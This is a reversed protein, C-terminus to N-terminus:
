LPKVELKVKFDGSTATLKLLPMGGKEVISWKADASSYCVVDCVGQGNAGTIRVTRGDPLPDVKNGEATFMQWVFKGPADGVKRYDDKIVLSPAEASRRYTIHREANTLGAKTYADKAQGTVQVVDGSDEFYTISGQTADPGGVGDQGKGDVLIVNHWDATKKGVGPDIAFSEGCAYFTFSNEDAHNWVGEIGRDSTLTFLSDGDGWGSRAVVQGLEFQKSLPWDAVSPSLPSLSNDVWLISQMMRSSHGSHDNAGYSGTGGYRSSDGVMRLWAWMGVRNQFRSCFYLYWDSQNLLDNSQNIPVVGGGWPYESYALWQSIQDLHAAEKCALLDVGRLRNLAVAYDVANQKGYGLYSAGEYPAGTADNSFKFYGLLRKNALEIWEPHADLVLACLGMNGHSVTNWNSAYRAEREEGIWHYADTSGAKGTTSASYIYAGLEEVENRLLVDQEPSLFPQVLDYGIAFAEAANGVFLDNNIQYFDDPSYKKAASCLRTIASSMYDERGTMYSAFAAAIVQTSFVRADIGKKFNVPKNAIQLVGDAREILKAYMSAAPEKTVKERLAPLEETDFFLFPHAPPADTVSSPLSTRDCSCLSGAMALVGM